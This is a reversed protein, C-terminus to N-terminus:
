LSKHLIEGVDPHILLAQLSNKFDELGPGSPQQQDESIRALPTGWWQLGWRGVSVHKAPLPSFPLFADNWDWFEFRKFFSISLTKFSHRFFNLPKESLCTTNSSHSGEITQSDRTISGLVKSWLQLEECNEGRGCVWWVASLLSFYSGSSSCCFYM